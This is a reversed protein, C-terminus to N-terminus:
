RLCEAVAKLVVAGIGVGAAVFLGALLWLVPTRLECLRMLPHPALPDPWSVNPEAPDRKRPCGGSRALDASSCGCDNCDTM